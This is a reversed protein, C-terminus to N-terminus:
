CLAAGSNSMQVTVKAGEIYLVPYLLTKTKHYWFLPVAARFPSLISVYVFPAHHLSNLIYFPLPFFM